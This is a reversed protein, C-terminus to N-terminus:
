HETGAVAMGDGIPMWGSAGVSGVACCPAVPVAWGNMVWFCGVHGMSDVQVCVDADPAPQCEWLVSPDVPELALVEDAAFVQSWWNTEQWRGECGDPTCQVEALEIHSAAGCADAWERLEVAVGDIVGFCTDYATATSEWVGVYDCGPGPELPLEDAPQGLLHKGCIDVICVHRDTGFLTWCEDGVGLNAPVWIGGELLPAMTGDTTAAAEATWSSSKAWCEADACTVTPASMNCEDGDGDGPDGDGDGATGSASDDSGTEGDTSDGGDFAGGPGCGVLTFLCATLGGVLQMKSNSHLSRM